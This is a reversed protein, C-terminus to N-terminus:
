IVFWSSRGTSEHIPRELPSQSPSVSTTVVVECFPLDQSSRAPFKALLWSFTVSRNLSRSALWIHYSAVRSSGLVNERGHVISIGSYRRISLLACSISSFHTGNASM